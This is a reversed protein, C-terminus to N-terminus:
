ITLSFIVDYLFTINFCCKLFMMEFQFMAREVIYTFLRLHHLYACSQHKYSKVGVHFTESTLVIIYGDPVEVVVESLRHIAGELQTINSRNYVM